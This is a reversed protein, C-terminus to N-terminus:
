KTRKAIYAQREAETKFYKNPQSAGFPKDDRTAQIRVGFWEGAELAFFTGLHGEPAEVLTVEFTRVLFGQKRGKADVKGSSKTALFENRRDSTQISKSM